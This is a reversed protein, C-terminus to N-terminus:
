SIRAYQRMRRELEVLQDKTLVTPYIAGGLMISGTNGLANSGSGRMGVRMSKTSTPQTSGLSDSTLVKTALNGDVYFNVGAVTGSGDYTVSIFHHGKTLITNPTGYCELAAGVGGYMGFYIRNNAGSMMQFEIGVSNPGDFTSFFAGQSHITHFNLVAMTFPTTRNFLNLLSTDLYDTTDFKMGNKVQTPFSTGTFGDGLQVTAPGLKGQNNIVWNQVPEVTIDDFEVYGGVNNMGVIYFQMNGATRTVDFYQWETSNTGTWDVSSSISIAPITVGDSRCWGRARYARIPVSCYQFATAIAGTTTIRICRSGSHPNITQKSLTASSSSWANTNVAEMNGDALVNTEINNYSSKMDLYLVAREPNLADYLSM